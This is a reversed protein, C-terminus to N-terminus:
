IQIHEIHKRWADRLADVSLPTDQLRNIAFRRVVEQKTSSLYEVPSKGDVRALLLMPLLWALTKEVEAARSGGLHAAYESWFASALDLYEAARASRNLAKLFL